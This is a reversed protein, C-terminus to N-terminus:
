QADTVQQYRLWCTWKVTKGVEGFVKFAPGVAGVYVNAKWNTASNQYTTIAANGLLAITGNTNDIVGEVKFGNREVTSSVDTRRGIFTAEFFWTSNAPMTTGPSTWTVSTASADTSVATGTLVYQDRPASITIDNGDTTATVGTGAVINRFHLATGVQEKLVGIGTGINSASNIATSAISVTNGDGSTTLTISTGATLSRFQLDNVVKSKFLGTGSGLNSATTQDQVTSSIVIDNGDSSPAVSIGTGALITRFQLNGGPGTKGMYVAVNTGLNTGSQVGTATINISNNDVSTAVVIGTGATFSRFQLDTGSKGAYVVVGTGLNVAGISSLASIILSSDDTNSSITVGTGATLSRFQLDNVVKSKFVGSGTGLNSATTASSSTIIINNDDPSLTVTVGTGAQISRFNLVDAIKSQYIKGTGTGVNTGAVTSTFVLDHGNLAINIGSGTSAKLNNFQIVSGSVGSLVALGTGLSSASSIFSKWAGDYGDFTNTDTDYRMMSAVTTTPRSTHPGAPIGVFQLGPLMPNDSMAVTLTETVANTTLRIPSVSNITLTDGPNMADITNQGPVSIHTWGTTAVAGTVINTWAGNYVEFSNTDTNFRIEGLAGTPRQSTTGAPLTLGGTGELIPNPSLSFTIDKLSSNTVITINNGNLLNLTDNPSGAVVSPQGPVAITEFNNGGGGTGSGTNTITIAGTSSDATISIGTGAVVSFTNNTSASDITRGGALVHQFGPTVTSTVTLTNTSVNSTINIGTGAAVTLTNNTGSSNLTNGGAAVHSYGTAALTVTKSQANASLSIGNGAVFYINDGANAPTLETAGFFFNEFVNQLPATNAITVTNTLPDANISIRDGANVTLVSNPSNPTLVHGEYVFTRFMNSSGVTQNEWKQASANYSLVQGDAISTLLVDTLTSLTTSGSPVTANIWKSGNYELVQNAVPSTITVDTLGSLTNSNTTSTITLVKGNVDTALTIGTGAAITLIDNPISASITSSGLVAVNGFGAASAGGGGNGGQVADLSRLTIQGQEGGAANKYTLTDPASQPISWTLFGVKKNQAYDGISGDEHVLGDSYYTTSGPHYINFGLTPLELSILYSRGKILYINPNTNALVNVKFAGDQEHIKFDGLAPAPVTQQVADITADFPQAALDGQVVVTKTSVVRGCNDLVNETQTILPTGGQAGILAEYVDPNLFIKFVNDYVMNGDSVPYDGLRSYLSNLQFATTAAAAVASADSGVGGAMRNSIAALGNSAQQLQNVYQAIVNDPIQSGGFTNIDQNLRSLIGGSMNGWNPGIGGSGICIHSLAQEFQAIDSIINGAAGMYGAVMNGLMDGIRPLTFPVPCIGGLGFLSELQSTASNLRGLTDNIGAQNLMTGINGALGNLADALVGSPLRGLLDEIHTNICLLPGNLLNNVDGALLACILRKIDLESPLGVNLTKGVDVNLLAM